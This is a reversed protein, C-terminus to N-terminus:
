PRLIIKGDKMVFVVNEMVRMDKLPDGAVAIIDALKNKEITGLQDDIGLLRAPVLTASQIAEMPPMGADVMLGFEKANLGHVFVGADTGFVINVGKKYAQAFTEQLKPGIALAKPVVLEPFYGKVKASDAVTRGATLTPVLYTGREKMLQMVEEDMLTGHEITTVGAIVARKMGEKGHAHAAVHMGYDKATQVIAELEEQTFQPGSGDKAVSLVGGTATIKILDSGNKYAQRVAKRAEDASNIVGQEPGPDGMLLKNVGNTPDAHGGTTAISKGATYIRPGRTWGRDIAKKLSINIGTGGLDRVTTFGAELTRQAFLAARFAFDAENMFFKESYQDPNTEGELHVHMDMLGPMVTHDRLDILQDTAGAPQYGKRVEVIKNDQIVLTIEKQAKNSRGDILTGAHIIIRQQAILVIPLLLLLCLTLFYKSM